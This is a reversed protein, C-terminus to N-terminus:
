ISTDLYGLKRMVLIHNKIVDEIQRMTLHHLYDDRKGVRFFSESHIPKERFGYTAEMDKLKSFDSAHIAREFTKETYSIGLRMLLDKFVQLCNELLQEFTIFIVPIHNQETWGSVHESWSGIHQPVQPKLGNESKSIMYNPDKLQNIVSQISRSSHFSYSVTVDLPNRAIYVVARTVDEPFIYEGKSNTGFSDHVKLVMPGDIRSSLKRYVDPRLNDIEEQTFNASSVGLFWDILSRNSAIPIENLPPLGLDNM